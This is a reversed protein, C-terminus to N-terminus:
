LILNITRSYSTINIQRDGIVVSFEIDPDCTIMITILTNIWSSARANDSLYFLESSEIIDSGSFLNERLM